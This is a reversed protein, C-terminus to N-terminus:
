RWDHEDGGGGYNIVNDQDSDEHFGDSGTSDSLSDNEDPYDNKYYEEANSDEDAEDEEESEEESDYPDTILPPLGCLTGVNAAENWESLTAPRHYFVDWVYDNYQSTSTTANAGKLDLPVDHLKLYDNLMPLFNEMESNMPPSTPMSAAPIADYM